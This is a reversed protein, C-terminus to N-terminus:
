WASLGPATTTNREGSSIGNKQSPLQKLGPYQFLTLNYQCGMDPAAKKCLALPVRLVVHFTTIYLPLFETIINRSTTSDPLFFFDPSIECPIVKLLLERCSNNKCLLCAKVLELKVYISLSYM